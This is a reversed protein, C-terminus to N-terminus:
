QTRLYSQKASRASRVPRVSQGYTRSVSFMGYSGSEFDYDEAEFPGSTRLSSSWYCCTHDAAYHTSGSRFGAAPLFITNGNPGTFCIGVVGKQTTWVMTCRQTLEKWEEKTPTRADGGWQVTAADDVDQLITLTDTYGDYGCFSYSCYKTLLHGGGNDCYGYTSWDYVSKTQTEAWAYYGGYDEPGSAGVNHTAWLLGSPLGLDVWDSSTTFSVENGYGTGAENIAYARVYYTSGEILDAASVEFFGLGSGNAIHSGAVSPNHITDFCIGREIVTGGGAYTVEGSVIVYNSTVDTVENTTVMPLEYGRYVYVTDLDRLSSWETGNEHILEQASADIHIGYISQTSHCVTDGITQYKIFYLRESQGFGLIGALLFVMLLISNKM